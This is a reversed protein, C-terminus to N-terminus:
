PPHVLWYLVAAGLVQARQQELFTEGREHQPLHPLRPHQRRSAESALLQLALSLARCLYFCAHAFAHLSTM